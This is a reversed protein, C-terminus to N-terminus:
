ALSVVQMSASDSALLGSKEEKQKRNGKPVSPLRIASLASSSSSPKSSSSSSSGNLKVREAKGEQAFEAEDNIDVSSSAAASEMMAELEDALEDEDIDNGGYNALESMANNLDEAMDRVESVDDVAKEARQVMKKDKQMSKSTTELASTLTKQVAAQALLDVQQEVADLSASNAAVSSELQKAKKLARMAAQKQGARVLRAAEARQESARQELQEIRARMVSAAQELMRAPDSAKKAGALGFIRSNVEVSKTAENASASSSSSSSSSVPALEQTAGPQYKNSRFLRSVWAFCGSSSTRTTEATAKSMIADITSGLEAVEQERMKITKFKIQIPIPESELTSSAPKNHTKTTKTTKTSTNALSARM